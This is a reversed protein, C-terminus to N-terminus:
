PARPVGIRATMSARSPGVTHCQTCAFKPRLHRIINGGVSFQGPPDINLRRRCKLFWRPLDARSESFHEAAIGHIESFRVFRMPWSLFLGASVHGCGNM